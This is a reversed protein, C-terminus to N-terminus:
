YSSLFGLCAAPASQHRLCPMLSELRRLYRTLTPIVPTQDAASDFTRRGILWQAISKGGSRASLLPLGSSYDSPECHFCKTSCRSDRFNLQILLQGADAL